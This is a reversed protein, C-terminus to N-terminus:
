SVFVGWPAMHKNARVHQRGCAICLRMISILSTALQAEVSLSRREALDGCPEMRLAQTIWPIRM